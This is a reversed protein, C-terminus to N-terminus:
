RERLSSHMAADSSAWSRQSVGSRTARIRGERDASRVPGSAAPLCAPCANLVREPSTQQSSRKGKALAVAM